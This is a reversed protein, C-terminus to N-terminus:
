EQGLDIGSRRTQRMAATVRERARNENKIVIRNSRSAVAKAEERFSQHALKEYFRQIALLMYGM